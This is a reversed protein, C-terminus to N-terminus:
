GPPFVSTTRLEKVLAELSNLQVKFARENKRAIAQSLDSTIKELESIINNAQLGRRYTGQEVIYKDITKM